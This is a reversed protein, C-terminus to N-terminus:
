EIKIYSNFIRKIDENELYPFLEEIKIDKYKGDIYDDVIQTLCDESAFVALSSTSYEPHWSPNTLKKIFLEDADEDEFFPIITAINIDKYKPDDNLIDLFIKHIDEDELFPIINILNDSNIDDKNVDVNEGKVAKHLSSMLADSTNKIANKIKDFEINTEKDSTKSEILEDEFNEKEEEDTFVLEDKNEMKLAEQFNIEVYVTRGNITEKKLIM